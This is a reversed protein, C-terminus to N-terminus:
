NVHRGHDNARPSPPFHTFFSVFSPPVPTPLSPWLNGLRQRFATSNLIVAVRIRIRRRTEKRIQLFPPLDKTGLDRNVIVSDGGVSYLIPHAEILIIKCAQTQM